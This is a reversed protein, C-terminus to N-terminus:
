KKGSKQLQLFRFDITRNYYKACIDQSNLINIQVTIKLFWWIGNFFCEFPLDASIKCSVYSSLFISICFKLIFSRSIRWFNGIFINLRFCWLLRGTLESNSWRGTTSVFSPWWVIHCLFSPIWTVYFWDVSCYM